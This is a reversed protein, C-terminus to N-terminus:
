LRGEMMRRAEDLSDCPIVRGRETFVLALAADGSPRSFGERRAYADAEKYAGLQAGLVRREGVNLTGYLAGPHTHAGVYIDADGDWRAARGQGHIANYISSGKFKHRARLRWSAAGVRVTVLADDTDYIVGRRVRGVLDRLLDVGAAKTTWQDHNGAVCAVLRPGLIDLVHEALVWEDPISIRTHTRISMCWGLIFNDVLDGVLFVGSNPISRALECEDRLKPYNTGASGLHLDAMFVLCAPGRPFVIEQSRQRERTEATRRWEAEARAWVEAPDPREDAMVGVTYPRDDGVTVTVPERAAGTAGERGYSVPAPDLAGGNQLGALRGSAKAKYLLGKSRDEEGPTISSWPEGAERRAAYELLRADDWAPM